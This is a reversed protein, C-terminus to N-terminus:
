LNYNKSKIVKTYSPLGRYWWGELEFPCSEMDLLLRTDKCMIRLGSEDKNLMLQGGCSHLYNICQGGDNFRLRKVDTGWCLMCRAHSNRHSIIALFEESHKIDYEIWEVISGISSFGESYGPNINQIEQYKVLNYKYMDIDLIIEDIDALEMEVITNCSYCWGTGRRARFRKGNGIDYELKVRTPLLGKYFDCGTCQVKSIPLSM